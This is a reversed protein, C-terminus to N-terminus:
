QPLELAPESCTHLKSGTTGTRVSLSSAHALFLLELGAGSGQQALFFLSNIDPALAPNGPALLTAPVSSM